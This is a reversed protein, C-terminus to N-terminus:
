RNERMKEDGLDGLGLGGAVDIAQGTIGYAEDSALFLALNAIEQPDIMRKQPVEKILKPYYKKPVHGSDVYGPCIANVTINYRAMEMAMGKTLALIGAKTVAYGVYAFEPVKAKISAINIIRGTQRRAMHHAAYQSFYFTGNLNTNIANHWRSSELTQIEGFCTVGADNVLIDLQGLKKITERVTNYVQEQQSVDCNITLFGNEKNAEALKEQNRACIAVKAGNECFSKAIALGIGQDGGTVLVRKGQFAYKLNM